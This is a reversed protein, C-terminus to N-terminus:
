TEARARWARWSAADVPDATSVMVIPITKTAQKAARIATLSTVVLVDVPLQTLEAVISPIRELNGEASRFEVFINKGIVYGLDRLGQRFGEATSKPNSFDAGGSLYGVRPIRAPQQAEGLHVHALLLAALLWLIKRIM